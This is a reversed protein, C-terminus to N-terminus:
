FHIEEFIQLHIEELNELSIEVISELHIEAFKELQVDAFNELHNKFMKLHAPLARNNPGFPRMPAASPQLGGCSSSFAARLAAIKRTRKFSWIMRIKGSIKPTTLIYIPNM